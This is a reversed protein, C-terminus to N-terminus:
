SRLLHHVAEELTQTTSLTSTAASDGSRSRLDQIWAADDHRRPLSRLDRHTDALALMGAARATDFQRVAVCALGEIAECMAAAHGIALALGLAREHHARAAPLDDAALTAQGWLHLAAIVGETYGIREQVAVAETAYHIADEFRGDRLALRTVQELGM